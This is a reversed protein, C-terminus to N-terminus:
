ELWKLEQAVARRVRVLEEDPGYDFTVDTYGSLHYDLANRGQTILTEVYEDHTECEKTIVTGALGTEWAHNLASFGEKTIYIDEAQTYDAYIDGAEEVKTTLIGKDILSAFRPHTPSYAGYNREFMKKRATQSATMYRTAFIAEERTMKNDM